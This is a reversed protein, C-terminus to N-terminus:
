EAPSEGRQRILSEPSIGPRELVRSIDIPILEMFDFVPRDVVEVLKYDGESMVRMFPEISVVKEGTIPIWIRYKVEYEEGSENNYGTPSWETEIIDIFFMGDTTNYIQRSSGNAALTMGNNLIVTVVDYVTDDPSKDKYEYKYERLVVRGACGAFVLLLILITRSKLKM